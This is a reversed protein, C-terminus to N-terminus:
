RKGGLLDRLPDLFGGPPETTGLAAVGQGPQSETYYWDGNSFVLGDPPEPVHEPVGKLARGMYSIWVPLALGGGTERDGLKRPQDFGVWAVAAIGPQYGAFWADHSDNTTGTKGALDSRKLSLARAATGSRVVDRLMSNMIFANRPDIARLSEDGAKGPRAKGLRAGGCVEAGQQWPATPKGPRAQGPWATGSRDRGLWIM